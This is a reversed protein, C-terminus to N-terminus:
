TITKSSMSGVAQPACGRLKSDIALNYLALDRAHHKMQLRVRIAWVEKTRPRRKQAVLRGKNWPTRLRDNERDHQFCTKM